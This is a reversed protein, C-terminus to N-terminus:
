YTIAPNLRNKKHIKIGIFCRQLGTHKDFSTKLTMERFDPNSDLFSGFIDRDTPNSANNGNSDVDMIKDANLKTNDSSVASSVTIEPNRTLKAIRNISDTYLTSEFPSNEILKASPLVSNGHNAEETKVLGSFSFVAQSPNRDLLRWYWVLLISAFQIHSFQNDRNNDPLDPPRNMLDPDLSSM